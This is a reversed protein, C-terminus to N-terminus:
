NTKYFDFLGQKTTDNVNLFGLFSEDISVFNSSADVYRIIFSMQEQYSVYPTCDLIV